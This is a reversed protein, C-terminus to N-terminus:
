TSYGCWPIPSYPHACAIVSDLDVKQTTLNTYVSEAAAVQQASELYDAKSFHLIQLMHYAIPAILLLACWVTQFRLWLETTCRYRRNSEPEM